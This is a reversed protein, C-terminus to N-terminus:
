EGVINPKIKSWLTILVTEKDGGFRSSAIGTIRICYEKIDKVHVIEIKTIKM